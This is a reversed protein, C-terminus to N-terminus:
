DHSILVKADYRLMLLDKGWKDFFSINEGLLYERILWDPYDAGAAHSLPYGGGFRANVELGKVYKTEPNGFVQITICGKAGDLEMLKDLLYEYVFDKRTIGKSVEGSRIEIRQRPILCCLKSQKDYYADVTYERYEPGILEMFMNKEDLLIHESLMDPSHIIATGVSSSGDYPKCFCPFDIKDKPYIRPADIENRAFLEATKRKDRCKSVLDISSIVPTIGHDLFLQQNEALILLETDITPVILGVDNAVCIEILKSIYDPSDVRPVKFYRDSINCAASYDPNLDVTFVQAEPFHDRLAHQFSQVLEVRRGASAILVNNKKM